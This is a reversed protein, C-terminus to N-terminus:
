TATPRFFAGPIDATAVDGGEMASIMCSLMLGETSITPSTKDEKKLWEQQKRGDTCGHRKITVEDNKLKLFM